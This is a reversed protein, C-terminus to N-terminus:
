LKIKTKRSEKIEKKKIEVKRQLAVAQPQRNSAAVAFVEVM